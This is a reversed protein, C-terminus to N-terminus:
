SADGRARAVAAKLVRPVLVEVLDRRYEASAHIDFSPDIEAAIQRGLEDFAREDVRQGKFREGHHSVNLPVPGVAGLALMFHEITGSNSLTVQTAASAMAFDGHRRNVEDFASGTKGSVIPLRIEVLIEDADLATTLQSVFFDRAAITRTGRPGEVVLEGELAVVVLPWEAAPDANALSGGITGRNRIVAHAIHPVAQSALPCLQRVLTSREIERHRTLSGITLVGDRENIYNLGEVRNLDILAEPRALRFNMMPVLTQGGALLKAREGYEGLLAVAEQRTRPAFYAFAVPKM